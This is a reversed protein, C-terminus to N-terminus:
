ARTLLVKYVNRVLRGIELDDVKTRSRFDPDKNAARVTTWGKDRWVLGQERGRQGCPRPWRAGQPGRFSLM